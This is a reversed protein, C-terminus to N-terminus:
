RIWSECGILRSERRMADLVARLGEAAEQFAQTTEPGLLPSPSISAGDDCTDGDFIEASFRRWAAGYLSMCRELEAACDSWVAGRLKGKTRALLHNIEAYAAILDGTLARRQAGSYRHALVDIFVQYPNVYADMQDAM